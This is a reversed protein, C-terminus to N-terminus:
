RSPGAPPNPGPSNAEVQDLMGATLRDFKTRRFAAAPSEMARQTASQRQLDLEGLRDAGPPLATAPGAAGNVAGGDDTARRAAPAEVVGAAVPARDESPAQRLATPARVADSALPSPAASPAPAAEVMDVALQLRAESPAQHLATPAGQVRGAPPATPADAPSLAPAGATPSRAAARGTPTEAPSPNPQITPAKPQIAPVILLEVLQLKAGPALRVALQVAGAGGAQASQGAIMQTQRLGDPTAVRVQGEKVTVATELHNVHVDVVGALLELELSQTHIQLPRAAAAVRYRLSGAQQDLRDNRDGGPLVFRSNPGASINRGPADVILRSGRGTSVESGDALAEGITASLWGVATPQLHRAEGTREVIRWGAPQTTPRPEASTTACACLAGLLALAALPRSGVPVLRKAM